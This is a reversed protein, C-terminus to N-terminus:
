IQVLKGTKCCTENKKKEKCKMYHELKKKQKGGQNNKVKLIREEICTISSALHFLALSKHQLFCTMYHHGECFQNKAGQNKAKVM